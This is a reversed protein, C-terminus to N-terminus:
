SGTTFDLTFSCDGYYQNQGDAWNYYGLNGVSTGLLFQYLTYSGGCTYTFSTPTTSSFSVPLTINGKAVVLATDNDTLLMASLVNGQSDFVITMWNKIAGCPQNENQNLNFATGNAIQYTNFIGQYGQIMGPTGFFAAVNQNNFHTYFYANNWADQTNNPPPGSDPANDPPNGLGSYFRLMRNLDVLITLTPSSSTSTITLNAPTSITVTPHVSDSTCVEGYYASYLTVAVPTATTNNFPSEYATTSSNSISAGGTQTISDFPYATQTSVVVSPYSVYTTTSGTPLQGGLPTDSAGVATSAPDITGTITAASSFYLDVQTITGVPLNLSLNSTNIPTKGDLVLSEAGSWVQVDSSSPILTYNGTFSGQVGIATLTVAITDPAGALIAQGLTLGLPPNHYANIQVDYSSTTTTAARYAANKKALISRTKIRSLTTSVGNKASTSIVAVNGKISVGSNSNNTPQSCALLAFLIGVFVLIGASIRKM